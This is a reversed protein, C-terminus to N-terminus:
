RAVKRVTEWTRTTVEKGFTKEILTMFTPGCPNPVYATFIESGKVGLIRAGDMAIPLALKAKPPERQFTVVRKAKPELEFAAYPDSDLLARLADISRVITLFTRGLGDQMAKEAKRALAAEAAAPATFVVNGSALVTKVDTFGASEFCARLETMKANMPSIGRLLAAYSRRRATM